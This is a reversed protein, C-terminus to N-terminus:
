ENIIKALFGLGNIMKEDKLILPSTDTSEDNAFIIKLNNYTQNIISELNQSAYNEANYIPVSIKINSNQIASSM